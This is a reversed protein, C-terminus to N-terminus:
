IRLSLPPSGTAPAVAISCILFLRGGLSPPNTFSTRTRTLGPGLAVVLRSLVFLAGVCLALLVLFYETDYGSQM